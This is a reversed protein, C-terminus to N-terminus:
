SPCYTHCPVEEPLGCLRMVPRPDYNLERKIQARSGLDPERVSCRIILVDERLHREFRPTGSRKLPHAPMSQSGAGLAHPTVM